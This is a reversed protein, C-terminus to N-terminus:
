SEEGFKNNFLEEIEIIALEEDIGETFVEIETNFSAALSLIGLISKADITLNDANILVITKFLKGNTSNINTKAIKM